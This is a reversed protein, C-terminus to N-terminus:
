EGEKVEEKEENRKQKLVLALIVPRHDSGYVDSVCDYWIVHYPFVTNNKFLIRDCYSPAQSKKNKYLNNNFNRKYTPKFSIKPEYYYPYKPSTQRVVTKGKKQIEIQEGRQSIKLQDMEDMLKNAIKIQGQDCMQEYTSNFRYNLDGMIFNYDCVVDSDMEQRDVKFTEILSAMMEDRKERNNQGMFCTVHLSISISTM